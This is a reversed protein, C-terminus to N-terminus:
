LVHFFTFSTLSLSNCTNYKELILHFICIFKYILFIIIIVINFFNFVDTYYYYYYFFVITVEVGLLGGYIFLDIRWRLDSRHYGQSGPIRRHLSFIQRDDLSNSVGERAYQEVEELGVRNISKEQIEGRFRRM